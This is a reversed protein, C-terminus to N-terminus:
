LILIYICSIKFPVVIFLLVHSYIIKFLSQEGSCYNNIETWRRELWVHAMLRMSFETFPPISRSNGSSDKQNHVLPWLLNHHIHAVTVKLVTWELALAFSSNCV